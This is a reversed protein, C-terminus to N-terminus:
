KCLFCARRAKDEIYIIGRLDKNMEVKKDRHHLIASIIVCTENQEFGCQMLIEPALISSATEHPVGEEYEVFRGIDHLLGAAYILEEEINLQEKLNLIMAIRAVDLFHEINHCCFSRDAEATYIKRTYEIFLDHNLIKDIREM